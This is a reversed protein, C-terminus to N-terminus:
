CFLLILFLSFDHLLLLNSAIIGGYLGRSYICCGSLRLTTLIVRSASSLFSYAMYLSKLATLIDVITHLSFLTSISCEDVSLLLILSFIMSVFTSFSFHSVHSDLYFNCSLSYGILGSNIFM